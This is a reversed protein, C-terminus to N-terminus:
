DAVVLVLDNLGCKGVEFPMARQNFPQATIRIHRTGGLLSITPAKYSSMASTDTNTNKVAQLEEWIMKKIRHRSRERECPKRPVGLEAM